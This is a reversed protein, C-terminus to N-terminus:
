SPRCCEASSLQVRTDSGLSASLPGSQASNIDRDRDGAAGCDSGTDLSEATGRKSIPVVIRSKAEVQYAFSEARTTRIALSGAVGTPMDSRCVIVGSCKKHNENRICSLPIKPM